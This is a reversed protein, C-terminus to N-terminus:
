GREKLTIILEELSQVPMVIVSEIQSESNAIVLTAKNENEAGVPKIDYTVADKSLIKKGDKFWRYDLVYVIKDEDFRIVEELSFQKM